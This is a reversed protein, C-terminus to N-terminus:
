GKPEAIVRVLTSNPEALIVGDDSGPIKSVIQVQDSGRTAVATCQYFSTGPCPSPYAQTIEFGAALVVRRGADYAESASEISRYYRIVRPCGSLFFTCGTSPDALTQHVLVWAKPIALENLVAEYHSVGPGCGTVLSFAIGLAL